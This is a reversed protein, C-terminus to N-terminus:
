LGAGAWGLVMENVCGVGRCWFGCFDKILYRDKGMGGSGKGERTGYVMGCGGEAGVGTRRWRKGEWQM